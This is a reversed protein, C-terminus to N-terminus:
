SFQNWIKFFLIEVTWIQPIKQYICSLFCNKFSFFFSVAVFIGKDSLYLLVSGLIFSITIFCQCRRCIFGFRASINWFGDIRAKMRLLFRLSMVPVFNISFPLTFLFNVFLICPIHVGHKALLLFGHQSYITCVAVNLLLLIFLINWMYWLKFQLLIDIVQQFAGFTFHLVNSFWFSFEVNSKIAVSFIYLFWINYRCATM